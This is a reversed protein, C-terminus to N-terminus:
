RSEPTIASKQCPSIASYLPVALFLLKSSVSLRAESAATRNITFHLAHDEEVIGIVGGRNAFGDLDSVTLVPARCYAALVGALNPEDAASVFLVHPLPATKPAAAHTVAIRHPGVSKGALLRDLSGDFPDRGVIQVRFAESANQFADAPWDVFLM